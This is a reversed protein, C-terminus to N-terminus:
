SIGYLPAQNVIYACAEELWVENSIITFNYKYFANQMNLIAGVIGGVYSKSSVGGETGYYSEHLRM